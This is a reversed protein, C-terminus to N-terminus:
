RRSVTSALSRCADAVAADVAEDGVAELGARLRVHEVFVRRLQDRVERVGVAPPAVGRLLEDDEVAVFGDDGRKVFSASVAGDGSPRM